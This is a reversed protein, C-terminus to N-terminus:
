AVRSSSSARTVEAEEFASFDLNGALQALEADKAAHDVRLIAPPLERGVGSVVWLGGERDLGLGKISYITHDSSQDDGEASRPREIHKKESKPEEKHVVWFNVDRAKVGSDTIGIISGIIGKKRETPFLHPLTIRPKIGQSTLSKAVREAERRIPSAVKENERAIVERRQAMVILDQLASALPALQRAREEEPLDKILTDPGQKGGSAEFSLDADSM